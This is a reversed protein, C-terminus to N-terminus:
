ETRLSQTPNRRAARISLYSVTLLAIGLVALGAILFRLPGIAIQDTFNQLWTRILFYTVPVAVMYAAVILWVFEKSILVVVNSVTAGLVKRIGIEKVRREVSFSTLGLLGLCGVFIALGSFVSSVKGLQADAKYLRDYDEDLFSYRYPIGPALEKWEDGIAAVVKPIDDSHIKISFQGVFKTIELILPDIAQHLSRYHFDKTVGIITGEQGQQSVKKGLADEPSWGFDKM